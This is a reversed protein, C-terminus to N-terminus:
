GNKAAREKEMEKDLESKCRSPKQIYLYYKGHLVASFQHSITHDDPIKIQFLNQAAGLIDSPQHSYPIGNRIAWSRAVGICQVTAVRSGTHAKAKKKFIRYDEWLLETVDVLTELWNVFNDFTFQGMFHIDGTASNLLAAGISDVNGEGPDVALLM